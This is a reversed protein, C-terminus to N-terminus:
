EQLRRETLLGSPEVDQICRLSFIVLSLCVYVKPVVIEPNPLWNEHLYRLMILIIPMAQACSISLKDGPTSQAHSMM